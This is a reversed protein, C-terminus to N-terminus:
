QEYCLEKMCLLLANPLDKHILGRNVVLSDVVKGAMLSVLNSKLLHSINYKLIRRNGRGSPFQVSGAM